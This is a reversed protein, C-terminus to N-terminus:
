RQLADIKRVKGGVKDGKVVADGYYQIDGSGFIGYELTDSVNAIIDGSGAINASLQRIDCALNCDGSGAVGAEAEKVSGGLVNLEGSGAINADLEDTIIEVCELTGSGAVNLSIGRYAVTEKFFIDGSGALNVELEKGRLPSNANFTGSGALNIQEVGPATIDIVFETARLNVNKHKDSKRLLLDDKDVKIEFYELLNEDVRVTCTYDDGVTFNVTAPLSSSIEYFVTVDYSRTVINGDGKVTKGGFTEEDFHFTCSVLVICAIAAVIISIHRKM